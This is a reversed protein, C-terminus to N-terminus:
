RERIKKEGDFFFAEEMKSLQNIIQSAIDKVAKSREYLSSPTILKMDFYFNEGKAPISSKIRQSRGRMYICLVKCGKVTRALKGVGYAYEKTEVKGTTSRRGEPFVLAINKSKLIYTIKGLSFKVHDRNGGRSIPICCGLYCILMLFPNGFYSKKEPLNWAFRRFNLICERMSSLGWQIIVSDILTLHNPCILIPENTSELIKRYQRRIEKIDNIKYGKCVRMWFVLGMYWLPITVWAIFKQINLFIIDKRNLPSKSKSM